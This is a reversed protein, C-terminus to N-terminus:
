ALCTPVKKDSRPKRKKRDRSSGKSRLFFSSMKKKKEARQWTPERMGLWTLLSALVIVKTNHGSILQKEYSSTSLSKCYSKCVTPVRGPFPSTEVVVAEVLFSKLELYRGGHSALYGELVCHICPMLVHYYTVTNRHYQM